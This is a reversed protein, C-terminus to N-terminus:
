GNAKTLWEYEKFNCCTKNREFASHNTDSVCLAHSCHLFSHIDQLLGAM